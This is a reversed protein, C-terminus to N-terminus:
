VDQVQLFRVDIVLVQSEHLIKVLPQGIKKCVLDPMREIVLVASEHSIKVHPGRMGLDQPMYAFAFKATPKVTALSGAVLRLNKIGAMFEYIEM